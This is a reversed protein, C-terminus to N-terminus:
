SFLIEILFPGPTAFSESLAENLAAIDRVRRAPVGFGQAVSSFDLQPNGIDTLSQGAGAIDACGGLTIIHRLFPAPEGYRQFM